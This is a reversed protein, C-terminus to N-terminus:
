LKLRNIADIAVLQDTETRVWHPRDRAVHEVTIPKALFVAVGVAVLFIGAVVRTGRNATFAYACGLSVIGAARRGTDRESLPV